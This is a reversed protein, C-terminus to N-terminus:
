TGPIADVTDLWILDAGTTTDKKRIHQGDALRPFMSFRITYRSGDKNEIRNKYDVKISVVKGFYYQIMRYTGDRKLARFGLAYNPAVATEPGWSYVGTEEDYDAGDLKSELDLPLEQVVVEIDESKFESGSDYIGDDAPLEYDESKRDTSASVATPIDVKAGTTYTSATNATVPWVRLGSFGKIGKAAM